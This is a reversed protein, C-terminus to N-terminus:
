GRTPPAVSDPLEAINKFLEDGWSSPISGTPVSHVSEEEPTLSLMVNNKVQPLSYLFHQNLQVSNRFLRDLNNLIWFGVNM